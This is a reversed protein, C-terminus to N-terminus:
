PTSSVVTADSPGGADALASADVTTVGPLSAPDVTDPRVTVIPGAGAAAATTRFRGGFVSHTTVVRDGDVAVDVVDMLVPRSLRAALRGALERGDATHPILVADADAAQTALAATVASIRGVLGDVGTVHLIGMTVEGIGTGQPVR